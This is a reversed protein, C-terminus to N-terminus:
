RGEARHTRVDLRYPRGLPVRALEARLERQVAAPDATGRITVKTRKVGARVSVATVEPLERARTAVLAALGSRHLVATDAGEQGPTRLPLWRRMGPTFALVGLWVGLLVAAGAGVLVWTDDLHRTALQHALQARWPRARHGTRVAIVDYLVGGGVVLVATAVLGAAPTRPSRVRRVPEEPPAEASRETSGEATPEATPEATM